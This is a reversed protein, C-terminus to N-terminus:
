DVRITGLLSAAKDASDCKRYHGSANVAAWPDRTKKFEGAFFGAELRHYATRLKETFYDEGVSSLWVFDEESFRQGADM